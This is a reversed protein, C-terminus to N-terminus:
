KDVLREGGYWGNNLVRTRAVMKNGRRISLFCDQGYPVLVDRM